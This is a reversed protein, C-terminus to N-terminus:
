PRNWRHRHTGLRAEVVNFSDYVGPGSFVAWLDRGDASIWKSPLLPGFFEGGSADRLNGWHEYYGVTAWPGWPHPAEFLGVHGLFSADAPTSPSHAATLLYRKLYVDYVVCPGQAGRPDVFIARAQSADSSWVALKGHHSTGTLYQLDAASVDPSALRDRQIRKLFVHEDDSRSYYVYVFADIAARNDRGFNLFWGDSLEPSASAIRWSRGLDDSRILADLPGRESTHVPDASNGATWLGAHAYLVGDISILSEVKGGFDAQAEAYPLQGWVNKGAFSVPTSLSPQGTIRAFGLSARGIRDDNGDFGGGDGWACYLADDVSWTCPWLDSGLARRQAISSSFNWQVGTITRSHPYPPAQTHPATRPALLACSSLLLM